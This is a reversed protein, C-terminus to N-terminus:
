MEKENENENKECANAALSPGLLAANRLTAISGNMCLTSFVLVAAEDAYGGTRIGTRRGDFMKKPHATCEM